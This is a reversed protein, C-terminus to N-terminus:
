FYSKISQMVSEKSYLYTNNGWHKAHISETSQNILKASNNPFKDGPFIHDFIEKALIPTTCVNLLNIGNDIALQIDNQLNALDYYQYTSQPNTFRVSTECSERLYVELCNLTQASIGENLTYMDNEDNLYFSSKILDSKEALEHYKQENLFRPVPNMLDFIFNKKLNNGILAPLRLITVDPFLEVIKKEAFLRNKGYALSTEFRDSLENKPHNSNDYVAITSIFVLKKVDLHSISSMLNEINRLDEEPRNNALWMTAPIACCVALDYKSKLDSINKSNFKESYEFQTSLNSGVFGSYGILASKM